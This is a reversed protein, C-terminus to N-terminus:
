DNGWATLTVCGQTVKIFNQLALHKCNDDKRYVLNLRNNTPNSGSLPRYVVGRRQVSQISNPLISIGIEGAVLGLISNTFVAEVVIKLTSNSREFLDKIEAFLGTIFQRDPMIFDLGDLDAVSIEARAALPHNEPLVVILLEQTIPIIELDAAALVSATVNSYQYLFMVDTTRERLRQIQTVSDEESLVLKVESYEQKFARLIDPMISNAITPTFGVTLSNSGYRDVLKTNKTATELTKLIAKAAELFVKGADNPKHPRKRRDLLEVKLIAELAKIQSTLYPQSVNLRESARSVGGEEDQAVEIFCRLHSMGISKQDIETM